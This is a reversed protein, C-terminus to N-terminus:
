QFMSELLSNKNYVNSCETFLNFKPRYEYNQTGTSIGYRNKLIVLEVERPIQSKAENYIRRKENAQSERLNAIEHIANLQLGLVVDAGYEISGSEKFSSFDIYNLYNQRNVSSIAIVPTDLDRSLRKLEAINRDVNQKDPIRPDIPFIVQLYDIFIVPSEGHINKFEKSTNIIDQITTNFNGELYFINNLIKSITDNRNLMNEWDRKQMDGNLLERSGLTSGGQIFLERVITKSIMEKKSMELTFFLVKKGVSSIYDAIQQSFTTKGISSGAGIVYLGNYLGGGIKRDLEHFGTSIHKMGGNNYNYKIEKLLANYINCGNIFKYNGEIIEEETKVILKEFEKRNKVLFENVDKYFDPISFIKVTIKLDLLGKEITETAKVGAEDNDLALIFIKNKINHFNNRAIELFRKAMSVSNLAIACRGVEEFSLADAWGECIYIFKDEISNELYRKNFIEMSLGKLNLTKSTDVSGDHRAILRYAVMDSNYIPIFYKYAQQTKFSTCLEKHGELADNYGKPSYGLKYKHIVNDFGRKYFYEIGESNICQSYLKNVLNTFDYEKENCQKQNHSDTYKVLGFNSKKFEKKSGDEGLLKKIAQEKTMNEFEIFYDIISGGNCCDSFSCYTWWPNNNKGSHPEYITFHDKGNCKPCPNVRYIGNSLKKANPFKRLLNYNIKLSEIDKM